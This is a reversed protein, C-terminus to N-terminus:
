WDRSSAGIPARAPRNGASVNCGLHASRACAPDEAGAPYLSLPPDHDYSFSRKDPYELSYDIPQGCRWCPLGKARQEAHLKRYRGGSRGANAGSVPDTPADARGVM